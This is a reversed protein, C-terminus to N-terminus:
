LEKNPTLSLAIMVRMIWFSKLGTQYFLLSDFAFTVLVIKGSKRTTERRSAPITLEAFDGICVPGRIIGGEMWTNLFRVALLNESGARLLGEPIRYLRQKWQAEIYSDGIIGTGGIRKGNLFVEDSCGIRGLLLGSHADRFGEPLVFRIRYWGMGNSTDVGRSQWSGPVTIFSWGSDDLGPSARHPDDGAPFKHM